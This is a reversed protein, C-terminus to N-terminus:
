NPLRSERCEPVPPGPLTEGFFSWRNIKEAISFVYPETRAALYNRKQVSFEDSLPQCYIAMTLPGALVDNLTAHTTIKGCILNLDGTDTQGPLRDFGPIGRFVVGEPQDSFEIRTFPSCETMLIAPGAKTQGLLPDTRTWYLVFHRQNGYADQATLEGQYLLNTCGTSLLMAAALLLFRIRTM